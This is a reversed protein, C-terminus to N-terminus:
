RDLLGDLQRNLHDVAQAVFPLLAVVSLADRELAARELRQALSIEQTCSLMRLSGALRHAARALDDWAEDHRAVMMYLLTARNTDILACMVDRAVARDGLALADIREDLEGAEVALDFTDWVHARM